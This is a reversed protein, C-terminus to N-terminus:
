HRHTRALRLVLTGLLLILAGALLLFMLGQPVGTTSLKEAAVGGQTPEPQTPEPPSIAESGTPTPEATTPEATPTPRATTVPLVEARQGDISNGSLDGTANHLHLFLAKPEASTHSRNATLLTQPRDRFLTARTGGDFWLAPNAPDFTKAETKDVPVVRGDKLKNYRSYTTVRYSFPSPKSMDLGLSAAYVPLIMVNTDMTNSDLSGNIGNLPRIIVPKPEVQGNAQYRNLSVVPLDLDDVRTLALQFDDKGDRNTDIDVYVGYFDNLAPWRGWTSIGFQIDGNKPDLGANALAPANSSVGVYQLDMARVQENEASNDDALDEQRPSSTQLEFAGLLSNYGDGGIRGQALPRGSLTVKTSTAKADPFELSNGATMASVPKPAAHVPVRLAPAGPSRLELRGSAEAIFQRAMHYAQRADMTPDMTKRLAKPDAITLTIDVTGAGGAPVQVAPGVRYEVGPITTAPLYKAVYSLSTKGRNKVTVNRTISVPQDTVELVGFSVSTLNPDDTAFAYVETTVADLADVRGSGVRGPGYVNQGRYVDRNATNMVIAKVEQPPLKTKGLVLAAIGAVHPTSMSTGSKVAAGTGSGVAVSGISTGPAAVDPKVVGYSGHVGRSSSPNLTDLANTPGDAVGKYHAKLRLQLTGAEAAPRLQEAFRKTLQVGPTTANGAIGSNFVDLTSDLVVGTAGAKQANTFRTPSGCRRTKSNEDWRLWVWHGRVTTADNASFADCGDSNAGLPGMVVTGTLQEPSFRAPNFGSYQGMAQGPEPALVDVRDLAVASGISNAVTLAAKANGPAGGVNYMDGSNGSAVVALVGNRTLAEIVDNEPDSEPAYDTGLSLNVIDAHDDFNGDQNPDLARDLANIVLYTGGTCGFVRFAMIQAEPASGPGIRMGNVQDASLESYAPNGDQGARYTKGDETVGYGAVTGAVHTGHGGTRCDLPNNDPKPIPQYARSRPNPNYDDGALDYGGLFKEPDYTGPILEPSTAARAYAAQTGPGGFGAHTYDVGSDIVAIKVGRGTQGASVWTNLARTDVDTSKNDPITKPTIPTIKVVDPRGAVERIAAAEGSIAVGPLANTTTYLETAAAEATVERAKQEIQARIQRVQSRARIRASRNQKVARPQTAEYAGQGSFQIYVAVPGDAKALESSIKADPPLTSAGPDNPGPLHDAALAPLATSCALALSILSALTTYLRGKLQTRATTAHTM